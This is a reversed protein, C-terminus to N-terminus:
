SQKQHIKTHRILNATKSFEKGCTSCANEKEKEEERCRLLVDKRKFEKQCGECIFSKVEGGKKCALSHKHNCQKHKFVADPFTCKFQQNEKNM